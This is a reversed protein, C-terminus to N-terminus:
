IGIAIGGQRPYIIESGKTETRITLEVSNVNEGFVSKSFGFEIIDMKAFELKELNITTASKIKCGNYTISIVFEKPKSFRFELKDGEKLAHATDCRFYLNQGSSAFWVRHLLEGIQHMASMSASADFYGADNWKESDSIKGDIVPFVEGKQQVLSQKVQQSSLPVRVNDPCPLGLHEYIKSIHWRFLVDFDPKNEAVHEDGYWWFWDSGEAIYVENMALELNEFSIKDKHEEVAKRPLALMSWAEVDEPHGIWIKFNANIWSGAKIHKISSYYNSHENGIAESVKVTKLDEAQDLQKYLERQFHIGNQYYFEWCNEGDLIVPVVAHDLCQEGLQNILEGRIDRLCHMFNNAADKQDWRSYVFGIKDSLNHDRFLISIDGKDSKYKIPFYKMMPNYKEKLTGSLVEEDSATWKLGSEIMLNLVEDSLSGESPWMGMPRQGLYNEYYDLSKDVQNKADQPYKFLNEPMPTNPMAELASRSDCLLPLIPHYMPTSSIEVQGLNSLMIMQQKINSLLELHLELVANKEYETFNRGKTFLRKIAARERSSYGFWSLNYWVQLDRWDQPDMSTLAQEQNQSMMFLEDYRPYPKIMNELNSLFFLRLIEKKNEITLEEAKIKTLIQIKDLTKGSIYDEIQMSLSPVLNVTQKVNPFEHFLEPLDLYDKVGHLRVWPLLFIDDKGYYPQHYHWMLAIKLPKM